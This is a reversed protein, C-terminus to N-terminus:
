LISHKCLLKGAVMVLDSEGSGLTCTVLSENSPHITFSYYSGEAMVNAEVAETGPERFTFTARSQIINSPRALCELAVKDDEDNFKYTVLLSPTIALNTHLLAVAILYTVTILTLSGNM